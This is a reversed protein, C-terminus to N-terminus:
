SELNTKLQTLSESLTAQKTVYFQLLDPFKSFLENQPPQELFGQRQQITHELQKIHKEYLDERYKLDLEKEQLTLALAKYTDVAKELDAKDFSTNRSIEAIFTRLILLESQICRITNKLKDFQVGSPEKREGNASKKPM